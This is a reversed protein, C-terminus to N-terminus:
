HLGPHRPAVEGSGAGPRLGLRPPLSPLPLGPRVEHPSHHAAPDQHRRRRPQVPVGHPGGGIREQWRDPARGGAGGSRRISHRLSSGSRPARQLGRVSPVAGGM